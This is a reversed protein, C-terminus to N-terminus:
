GGQPPQGGPPSRSDVRNELEAGIDAALTDLKIAQPDLGLVQHNDYLLRAADRAARLDGNSLADFM